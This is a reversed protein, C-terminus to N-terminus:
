AGMKQMVFKMFATKQENSEFVSLPMIIAQNV